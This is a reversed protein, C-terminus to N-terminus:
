LSQSFFGKGVIMMQALNLKEDAFVTNDFQVMERVFDTVFFCSFLHMAFYLALFPNSGPGGPQFALVM